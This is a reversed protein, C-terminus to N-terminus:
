KKGSMQARTRSAQERHAWYEASSANLVSYVYRIQAVTAKGAYVIEAIEAPPRANEKFLARVREAITM